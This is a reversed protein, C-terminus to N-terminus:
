TRYEEPVYITFAESCCAGLEMPNGTVQRLPNKPNNGMTGKPIWRDQFRFEFGRSKILEAIQPRAEIHPLKGLLSKVFTLFEPHTM